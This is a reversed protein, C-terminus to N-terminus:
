LMELLDDFILMVEAEDTIELEIDVNLKDKSYVKPVFTNKVQISKNLLFLIM